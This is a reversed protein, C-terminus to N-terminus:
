GKAVNDLDHLQEDSIAICDWWGHIREDSELAVDTREDDFGLMADNTSM